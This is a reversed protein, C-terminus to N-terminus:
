FEQAYRPSAPLLEHYFAILDEHSVGEIAYTVVYAYTSPDVSKMKDAPWGLVNRLVTLTDTNIDLIRVDAVTPLVSLVRGLAHRERALLVLRLKFDYYPHQYSGYTQEGSVAAGAEMHCSLWGIRDDDTVVEGTESILTVRNEQQNFVPKVLGLLQNPLYGGGGDPVTSIPGPYNDIAANIATITQTIM